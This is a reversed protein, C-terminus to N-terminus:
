TTAAVGFGVVLSASAGASTGAMTINVRWWDDTTGSAFTAWEATSATAATFSIQTSPSAFSSSNDSQITVTISDAAGTSMDILHFVGYATRGSSGSVQIATGTGDATQATTNALLVGRVLNEDGEATVTFPMLQGVEGGVSYQTNLSRFIFARAGDSSGAPAITVPVNSTGIRNYFAADPGSSSAGNDWFGSYGLGITKLGGSHKRTTSDLTTADLSEAGYDINAATLHGTLDYNAFFVKPGYMRVAM